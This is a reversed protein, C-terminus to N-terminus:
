LGGSLGYRVLAKGASQLRPGLGTLSDATSSM